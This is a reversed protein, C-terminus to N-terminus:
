AAIQFWGKRVQYLVGDSELARLADVIESETIEHEGVSRAYRHVRWADFEARGDENWDFDVEAGTDLEAACGVGHLRFDGVGDIHGCRVRAGGGRVATLPQGPEHRSVGETTSILARLVVGLATLYGLVVSRASM